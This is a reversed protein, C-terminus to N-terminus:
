LLFNSGSLLYSIKAPFHTGPKLVEPNPGWFSIQYFRSRWIANGQALSRTEAITCALRDLGPKNRSLDFQPHQLFGSATSGEKRGKERGEEEKDWARVQEGMTYGEHRVRRRGMGEM